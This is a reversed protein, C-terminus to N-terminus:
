FAPRREMHLASEALPKFGFQAYLGHADRTVLHVRGLNKLRPHENVFSLAAKSLGHGRHAELVYVDCLYAFTAYDTVVRILGVQEGRPAYIGVCLSNELSRAVIDRPRTAAWYSRALYAHIADLDLRSPDDSITYGAHVTENPM